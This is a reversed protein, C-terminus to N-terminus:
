VEGESKGFIMKLLIAVVSIILFVLIVYTPFLGLLTSILVGIFTVIIFGFAGMQVKNSGFVGVSVFITALVIIFGGLLEAWSEDTDLYDFMNKVSDDDSEYEYPTGEMLNTTFNGEDSCRTLNDFQSITFESLTEIEDTTLSRNYFLVEDMLGEFYAIKLFRGLFIDTLYFLDSNGYSGAYTTQEVGNIFIDYKSEDSNWNVIINKWNSNNFETDIYTYKDTGSTLSFSNHNLSDGIEIISSFSAQLSLVINNEDNAVIPNTTWFSFAYMYMDIDDIEIYDSDSFNIASNVYGSSTWDTSIGTIGDNDGISDYVNQGSGEDFNYYNTLGELIPYYSDICFEYTYNTLYDLGAVDLNYTGTGTGDYFIKSTDEDNLKFYAYVNYDGYDWVGTLRASNLTVMSVDSSIISPTDFYEDIQSPVEILECASAFNSGHGGSKLIGTFGYCYGYNLACCTVDNEIDAECLNQCIVGNQEYTLGTNWTYGYSTLYSFTGDCWYTQTLTGCSNEIETASGFSILLLFMLGFVFIKDKM